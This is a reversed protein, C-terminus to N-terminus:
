RQKRACAWLSLGPLSIGARRLNWLLTNDVDLVTEVLDTLVKGHRWQGLGAHAHPQHRQLKEALCTLMRPLLLSCFMAGDREIALGTSSILQLFPQKRYRRFHRLFHEQSSSLIPHAPVTIMFFCGKGAHERVLQQLFPADEKIHEIVDLLLIVNYPGKLERIDRVANIGHQHLDDKVSTDLNIDVGDILSLPFAAKVHKLTYGDGCGVDLVRLPAKGALEPTLLRLIMRARTTEWPHRIGNSTRECLDM